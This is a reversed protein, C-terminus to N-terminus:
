SSVHLSFRRKDTGLAGLRAYFRIAGDNWAPTQWQVESLGLDRARDTVADMLLAGLGLGRHGPTLFLCDLYLYERGEWTSFEPSCTAYGVVEGGATEAVLCCLRPAPTDFLLVALREALDPVPPAAREYEAHAAALEAVRSLDSREAARVRAVATM